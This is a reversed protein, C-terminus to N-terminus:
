NQEYSYHPIEMISFNLFPPKNFNFIKLLVRGIIEDKKVVGFVRSDLSDVRNDGLVFYEDDRLVVKLNPYTIGYELYNESIVQDNIYVKGNKIEVTEGPLGIVRKIFKQSPNFPYKFVIVEGREPSRFRFTLEDVILYDGSSFNPEMSAGQVIFPQFIFFRIPLVILLSLFLAKLTDFFSAWFEKKMMNLYFIKGSKKNKKM